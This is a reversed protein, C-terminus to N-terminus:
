PKGKPVFYESRIISINWCMVRTHSGTLVLGLKKRSFDAICNSSTITLASNPQMKLLYWRIRLRFGKPPSGAYPTAMQM